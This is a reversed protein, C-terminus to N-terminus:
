ELVIKFKNNKELLRHKGNEKILEFDLSKNKIFSLDAYHSNLVKLLNQKIENEIDKFNNQLDLLRESAAISHGSATFGWGPGLYVVGPEIEIATNINAGRLDAIELDSFKKEVGVIGELRFKEISKPWNEHVSKLLSQMTWAGHNLVNILYANENDFRAYLLPGTRNVYGDKKIDSGLHLHYISWDFLLGDSSNLNKLKRSLHPKLIEGAKIKDELLKLGDQFEAPCNFDKSKLVKRPKAPILREQLTFFAISIQDDNLEGLKFGESELEKKILELWDKNLNISNVVM